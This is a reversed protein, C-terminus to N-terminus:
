TLSTNRSGPGAQRKRGAVLINAGKLFLSMFEDVYILLMPIFFLSKYVKFMTSSNAKLIDSQKSFAKDKKSYVSKTLEMFLQTFLIMSYSVSAVRFGAELFRSVLEKRTYDERFHKELGHKHCKDSVKVLGESSPTTIVALGGPKLVRRIENLFLRDDEVHEIVESSIVYDFTDDKFPLKKGADAVMYKGKPDQDAAFRICDKDLDIGTAQFRGSLRATMYGLGCGVDLLRKQPGPKLMRSIARYRYRVSINYHMPYRRLEM